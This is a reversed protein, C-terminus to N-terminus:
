ESSYSHEEITPFLSKKVEENYKKLADLMPAYFQGYQKVFRPKFGPFLGLVDHFVLVQGDCYPGAGIGITPVDVSETIKKALQWPVSELVISFVGLDALLKADELIRKAAEQTKGQVKFGGFRHIYQPTLGLHGMVAIGADLIAEIAAKRERGGELKVAQMHGERIFRGANEVAKEVSVSFSLFPMDGVLFATKAGRAVAQCHRIMDEMTVSLTDQYGLMVMGLSDGVLIIDTGAEDVLRASVYDYATLMTIKEKEQKMKYFDLVTKRM